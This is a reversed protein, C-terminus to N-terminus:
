IQKVDVIKKLYTFVIIFIIEIIEVVSFVSAGLLLGLYGGINSFLQNKDMKPIQKFTTQKLEDFYISFQIFRKKIDDFTFNKFKNNFDLNNTNDYISGSSSSIEFSSKSCELPCGTCNTEFVNNVFDGHVQYM